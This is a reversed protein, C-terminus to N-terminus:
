ITQVECNFVLEGDLFLNVDFDQEFEMFWSHKKLNECIDKTVKGIIAILVIKIGNQHKRFNPFIGQLNWTLSEIKGADPKYKTNRANRKESSYVVSAIAKNLQSYFEITIVNITEPERLFIIGGAFTHFVRYIAKDTYFDFDQRLIDKEQNSLISSVLQLIKAFDKSLAELDDFAFNTKSIKEIVSKM